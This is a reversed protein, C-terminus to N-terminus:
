AALALIQVGRADETESVAPYYDGIVSTLANDADYAHVIRVLGDIISVVNPPLADSVAAVPAEVYEFCSDDFMANRRYTSGGDVTVSDSDWCAVSGWMGKFGPGKADIMEQTAPMFQLVGGEGRLSETWKNHCHPALVQHFPPRARANNLKYIADYTFDVSMQQVTSGATVSLSPFLACLIDTATQGTANVIFKRLLDLDISGNVAVIRWLDSVQWKMLRRSVTLQFNASGIDENSAGGSIESSAAAFTRAPNVRSTKVTESGMGGMFDRRKMAARLDTPDYLDEHIEASLFHALGADNELTAWSIENAM